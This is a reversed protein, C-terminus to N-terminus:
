TWKSHPIGHLTLRYILYLSTLIIQSLLGKFLALLKYIMRSLLAYSTLPAACSRRVFRRELISSGLRFQVIDFGQGLAGKSLGLIARLEYMRDM